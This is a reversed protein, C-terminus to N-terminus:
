GVFRNLLSTTLFDLGIILPKRARPPEKRRSQKPSKNKVEM